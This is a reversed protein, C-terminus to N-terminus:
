EDSASEEDRSRGRERGLPGDGRQGGMSVGGTLNRLLVGVLLEENGDLSKQVQVVGILDLVGDETKQTVGSTGQALALDGIGVTEM